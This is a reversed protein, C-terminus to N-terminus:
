ILVPVGILAEHLYFLFALYLIVGGVVAIVDGRPSIAAESQGTDRRKVVIIDVIAFALFAGFLLISPLDGNAALHGIAWLKVGALMPHKVARKIRGAPAEAAVFLIMAPAMLAMPIHRTWLDPRWVPAYGRLDDYGLILLVLGALSIVSFAGRYANRGMREPLSSAGRPRFAAFLHAGFFVALGLGFTVTPQM